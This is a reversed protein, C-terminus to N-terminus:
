LFFFLSFISLFVFVFCVLSYFLPSICFFVNLFPPLEFGWLDSAQGMNTPILFFQPGQRKKICNASPHSFKILAVTCESAKFSVHGRLIGDDDIKTERHKTMKTM